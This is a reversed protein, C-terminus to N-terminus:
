RMVDSHIGNLYITTSGSGSENLRTLYSYVACEIQAENVTRSRLRLRLWSSTHTHINAANEPRLCLAVFQRLVNLVSGRGRGGSVCCVCVCMTLMQVSAFLPLPLARRQRYRRTKILFM